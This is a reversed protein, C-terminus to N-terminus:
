SKMNKDNEAVQVACNKPGRNHFLRVPTNGSRVADLIRYYSSHTLTYTHIWVIDANRVISKDFKLNTNIFRIPGKFMTKMINLYKDNGSFIVTNNQVEYPFKSDDISDDTEKNSDTNNNIFILERLDALERKENASAAEHESLKNEADKVTKEAKHLSIKLQEIQNELEKKQEFWNEPPAEFDNCSIKDKSMGLLCYLILDEENKDLSYNKRINELQAAYYQIDRLILCGSAEYVIQSLNRVNCEYDDSHLYDRKYFDPLEPSSTVSTEKEKNEVDYKKIGWPLHDVVENMTSICAGYLWPIDSGSEVLYLLAFCLEYPDKISLHGYCKMNSMLDDYLEKDDFLTIVEPMSLHHRSIFPMLARIADALSREFEAFAKFDQKSLEQLEDYIKKLEDSCDNNKKTFEVCSTLDNMFDSNFNLASDSSLSSEPKNLFANVHASKKRRKTGPNVFDMIDSSVKNFEKFYRDFEDALKNYRSHISNVEELKELCKKHHLEVDSFYHDCWTDICVKLNNVAADVTEKPVLSILKEFDRRSKVDAKDKGRAALDSTIIRKGDFGNEELPAIDKNRNYIISEVAAILKNDFKSDSICPSIFKQITEEDKPILPYVESLRNNESIRDLLWIAAATLVDPAIYTYNLSYTNLRIWYGAIYKKNKYRESDLLRKTSELLVSTRKKEMATSYDHIANSVTYNPDRVFHRDLCNKINNRICDTIKDREVSMVDKLIPKRDIKFNM